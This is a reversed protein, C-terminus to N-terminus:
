HDQLTGQHIRWLGFAGYKPEFHLAIELRGVRFTQGNRRIPPRKSALEKVESDDEGNISHDPPFHPVHNLLRELSGLDGKLPFFSFFPTLHM